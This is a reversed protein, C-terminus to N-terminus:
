YQIYIYIHHMIADDPLLYENASLKKTEYSNKLTLEVLGKTM